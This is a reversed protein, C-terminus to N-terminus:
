QPSGKSLKPIPAESNMARAQSALLLQLWYPRQTSEDQTSMNWTMEVEERDPSRGEPFLTEGSLHM